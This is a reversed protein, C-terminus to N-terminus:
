RSHCMPMDNYRYITIYIYQHETIIFSNDNNRIKKDIEMQM